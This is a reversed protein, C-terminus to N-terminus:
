RKAFCLVWEVSGSKSPHIDIVALAGEIRHSVKGICDVGSLAFGEPIHCTITYTDGVVCLSTGSLINKKEDWGLASLDIGGQTIHRSTSILVPHDDLPTIRLVATDMSGVTINLRDGVIGVFEKKWYDYVAFRNEATDIHLDASLSLSLSIPEDKLNMVGAINWSGFERCVALGLVVYGDGRKKPRVDSPHIDAVPMIRKLMDIRADDLSSLEDGITLPLGTLGYLSARSRAQAESNFEARLIICDGDAYLATNHFPYFHLTRDIANALFDNWSFVDGGIRAASFHDMAFTIDRETESSCCLFYMDPGIVTRAAAVANRMAAEPTISTDHFDTHFADCVTLAAPLTDWKVAKYGWDLIQKFVAPIYEAIVGPHSPDIWWQGCWVVKQALVWEPHKELLANKRGDNTAGIWLAPVIGLKEIENSVHCLGNPYAETRPTFTDVGDEGLGTLSSHNWEWDVWLVLKEAYAGFLSALMRANKLVVDESAKFQVSYWTMWGVPPTQFGHRKDIPAYPVSYTRRFYEEHVAFTFDRGFDLGSEFHFRYSRENWDYRVRFREGAKFELARDTTRDFLANDHISVAPGSAARLDNSEASLRMGFVSHEPDDGWHIIGGITVIARAFTGVTLSTGNLIVNVSFDPAGAPGDSFHVSLTRATLGHSKSVDAKKYDVASFCQGDYTKVAIRADSIFDSATVNTVFACSIVRSDENFEASYKKYNIYM